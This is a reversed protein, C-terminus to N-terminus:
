KKHDRNIAYITVKLKELYPYLSKDKPMPMKNVRVTARIAEKCLDSDGSHIDTRLVYGDRLLHMTLVCSKGYMDSTIRMQDQLTYAIDQQYAILPDMIFIDEEKEEVQDRSFRKEIEDIRKDSEEKAKKVALNYADMAKIENALYEVNKIDKEENWEEILDSVDSEKLPARTNEISKEIAMVAKDFESIEVPKVEKPSGLHKQKEPVIKKQIKISNEAQVIKKTQKKSLTFLFEFFTIDNININSYYFLAEM